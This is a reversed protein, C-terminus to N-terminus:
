ISKLMYTGKQRYGLKRYYERVGVGSIVAVKKYNNKKAIKEAEKVLKKGLGKHQTNKTNMKGIPTLHGYTHLERILASDKIEPIFNNKSEPIRFRLFAYVVKRGYDEFSLFYEDGDSAKYKDVFLKIKKNKIPNHGVERCRLCKCRLNRQSLEAQITERLNTIKNGAVISDSPIDRILRSIRCYRPVIESKVKILLEILKKNSYPKYKSAKFWKFLESGQVVTCPYIKIMDPKYNQNKFIEKIMEYDSKPTAGPLGPMLHYDVKFGANKLLKTAFIVEKSKHGRKVLQLINDYITQVGLEVRTCGLERFHKIEEPTISDPRTELTLGIIRHKAQENIKQALLLNKSKKDNCAEFCRKIFWERYKKDYASWTGGKIILEIKDTPHGNENLAEIRKLTQKYPDFKLLKARAAAPENSLYSKPMQSESPCYVCKGPCAYPKTLVTVVAVGSLSRVNRKILYNELNYNSKVKRKKVMQRYTKLIDRISPLDVKFDKAVNRAVQYIDKESKINSKVLKKILKELM